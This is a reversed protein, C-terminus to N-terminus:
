CRKRAGAEYSDYDAHRPNSDRRRCMSVGAIAPTEDNVSYGRPSSWGPTSVSTCVDRAVGFVGSPEIGHGAGLEERGLFSSSV